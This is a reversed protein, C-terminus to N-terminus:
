TLKIRPKSKKKSGGAMLRSAVAPVFLLLLLGGLIGLFLPWNVAEGVEPVLGGPNYAAQPESNVEGLTASVQRTLGDRLGGPSTYTIIYESQFGRALREYLATLSEQDNAYAFQGGAEDALRQLAPVDLGAIHATQHEPNGLGVTSISLGTPGIGALVDELEGSSRNDMGDTLVIIAKRGPVDALTATAEILADYMATDEDAVLGDIAFMIAERDTTIPQVYDVQENFALLGVADEPRLMDVYARAAEQAAELKGEYWMSGSVDMVLLTTISEVEGVGQINDTNVPEGDEMLVIREPDVYVPEGQADTVSLYVTVTPFSSTDVQTIHVQTEGGEPEQAFASSTTLLSMLTLFVLWNHLKKM